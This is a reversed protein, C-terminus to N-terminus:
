EVDFISNICAFLRDTTEKENDEFVFPIRMVYVDISHKEGDVLIHGRLTVVQPQELDEYRFAPYLLYGEKLNRKYAYERIQRLDDISIQSQIAAASEATNEIRDIAKYKTDLVFCRGNKFQVYIDNRLTFAAGYSTDNIIIDEILLTDSAQLTTKAKGQLASKIFGGIFGEFLLETPFLFCFSDTNDITYSTTKNLLFMKSMSLIVM